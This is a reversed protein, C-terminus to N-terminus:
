EGGYPVHLEPMIPDDEESGESDDLGWDTESVEVESGWDDEVLTNPDRNKDRGPYETQQEADEYM